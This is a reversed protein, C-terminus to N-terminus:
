DFNSLAFLAASVPCKLPPMPGWFEKGRKFLPIQYNFFHSQYTRGAGTQENNTM